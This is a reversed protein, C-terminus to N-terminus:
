RRRTMPDREAHQAIPRGGRRLSTFYDIHQRRSVEESYREQAIQRARMAVSRYLAPDDWLACVADYWPEVEAESPLRMTKFTMWEPIPLVRGGGGAFFDGGVVQPLSGRSGVIPPISNIMAEAAVRGFPEDWVSPVLLIRTLAFYDAPRPVAPAAMIQPYKTFDIGPIANLSGGSQGSQVVLIPIDPRRSGLMDALRAFLM